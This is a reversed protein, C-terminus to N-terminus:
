NLSNQVSTIFNTVLGKNILNLDKLRQVQSSDLSHPRDSVTEYTLFQFINVGRNNRKGKQVIQALVAPNSNNM